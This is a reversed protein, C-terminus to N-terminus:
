LLYSKDFAHPLLEVITWMRYEHALNAFILPTDDAVLERIFQRCMGCPSGTIKTDTAVCLAVIDSRLGRSVVQALASREACLAVPYSANEVNVGVIIEDSSLLVACGVAFRSYPVYAHQRAAIASTILKTIINQNM